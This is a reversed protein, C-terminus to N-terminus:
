PEICILSNLNITLLRTGMTSCAGGGGGAISSSADVSSPGSAVSASSFSLSSLALSSPSVLLAAESSVGGLSPSSPSVLLAAESSVGGLSPSGAVSLWPSGVSSSSYSILRNCGM